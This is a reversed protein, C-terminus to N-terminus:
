TSIHSWIIRSKVPTLDAFLEKMLARMEPRKSCCASASKPLIDNEPQRGVTLTKTSAAIENPMALCEPRFADQNASGEEFGEAVFEAIEAAVFDIM